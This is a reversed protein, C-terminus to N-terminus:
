GGVDVRGQEMEETLSRLFTVLAPRAEAPVAAAIEKMRTHMDALHDHMEERARSTPILLISRRDQPHPVRQLHGSGVLRDILATTAATTIGLHDALRRPTVGVLVPSDDAWEEPLDALRRADRSDQAEEAGQVARIVYRLAQLDTLNVAMSSGLRRRMERDAKVLARVSQLLEREDATYASTM